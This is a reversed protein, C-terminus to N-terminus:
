STSDETLQMLWQLYGDILREAQESRSWASEYYDHNIKYKDPVQDWLSQWAVQRWATYEPNVGEGAMTAQTQPPPRGVHLLTAHYLDDCNNQFWLVREASKPDLMEFEYPM